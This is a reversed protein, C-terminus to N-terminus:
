GIERSRGMEGRKEGSRGTDNRIGERTEGHEETDGIHPSVAWYPSHTIPTYLM